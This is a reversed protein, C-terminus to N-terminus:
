LKQGMREDAIQRGILTAGSEEIEPELDRAMDEGLTYLDDTQFLDYAANVLAKGAHSFRLNERSAEQRARLAANILEDLKALEASAPLVVPGVSRAAVIRGNSDRWSM